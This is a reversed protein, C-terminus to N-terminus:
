KGVTVTKAGLVDSYASANAYLLFLPPPLLSASRAQERKDDLRLALCEQLPKTAKLVETLHPSLADLRSRAAAIAAAVREKSAVLENCAGALERRQCLEWELRALQLQHEDKKTLEQLYKQSKIENVQSM